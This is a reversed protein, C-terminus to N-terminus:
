LFNYEELLSNYSEIDKIYTKVKKSFNSSRSTETVFNFYEIAFELDFDNILSIYGLWYYAEAKITKKSTTEIIDNFLNKAESFNKIKMYSIALKLNFEDYLNVTQFDSSSLKEQIEFIMDNYRKMEDMINLRNRFAEIKADKNNSIIEIKKLYEIAKDFKAESECIYALKSYIITKKSKSKIFSLSKEFEIFAKDYEKLEIFLDAFFLIKFDIENAKFFIIIFKAFFITQSPSPIELNISTFTFFALFLFCAEFIAKAIESDNNTLVAIYPSSAFQPLIIIAIPFVDSFM